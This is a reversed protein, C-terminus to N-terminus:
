RLLSEFTSTSEDLINIIYSSGTEKMFMSRFVPSQTALIVSHGQIIKGNENPFVFSCDALDRTEYLNNLDVQDM